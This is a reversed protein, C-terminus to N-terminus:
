NEKPEDMDPMVITSFLRRRRDPSSPKNLFPLVAENMAKSFAMFEEESLELPIKRYGVGDALLDVEESENLYRSFDDILTAVFTVFYRLHDEKSFKRIDEPTLQSARTGLAYVKEVTGRVPREEVVDILGAEVLKNIHRYLTAQPVDDLISSLQQPTLQKGSLTMIIRMRVPHLIIDLQNQEM